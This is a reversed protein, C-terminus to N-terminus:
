MWATTCTPKQKYKKKIQIERERTKREETKWRNRQIRKKKERPTVKTKDGNETSLFDFHQTHAGPNNARTSTWWPSARKASSTAAGSSVVSAGNWKKWWRHCPLYSPNLFFNQTQIQTPQPINRSCLSFLFDIYRLTTAEVAASYIAVILDQQTRIASAVRLASYARRPTRCAIIPHSTSTSWIRKAWRRRDSRKSAGSSSRTRPLSWRCRYGTSFSVSSFLFSTQNDAYHEPLESPSDVSEPQPFEWYIADADADPEEPQMRERASNVAM